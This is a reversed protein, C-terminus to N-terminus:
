MNVKKNIMYRRRSSETKKKNDYIHFSSLIVLRIKNNKKGTVIVISFLHLLYGCVIM